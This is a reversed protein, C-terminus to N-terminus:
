YNGRKRDSESRATDYSRVEMLLSNCCIATVDGFRPVMPLWVGVAVVARHEPDSLTPFHAPCNTTVLKLDSV